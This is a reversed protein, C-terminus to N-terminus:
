NESPVEIHDIVLTDVPSRVSELKLGLQEDVATFISPWEANGENSLNDPTWRLSFDYRGTLGTKDVVIKGLFGHLSLALAPMSFEQVEVCGNYSKLVYGGYGKVDAQRLRQTSSEHLKPGRKAVVLEYVPLQVSEHHIRLNARDFLLTQLMAQRQERSLAKFATIDDGDIKAEIDFKQTSLWKPGGLLRDEEYVGHAEQIVQRLSVGKAKFGDLTFDMGWGERGPPAERISVVGFQMQKADASAPSSPKTAQALLTSGWFMLFLTTVFHLKEGFFFNM